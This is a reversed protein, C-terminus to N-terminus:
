EKGRPLTVLDKPSGPSPKGGGGAPGTDGKGGAFALATVLLSLIVVGAIRMKVTKM